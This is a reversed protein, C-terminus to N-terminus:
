GFLSMQETKNDAKKEEKKEPVIEKPKEKNTKKQKESKWIEENFYDRAIKFVTDSSVHGALVSVGDVKEAKSQGGLMECVTEKIFDLCGSMKEPIFKPCYKQLHIEVQKGISAEVQAEMSKYIKINEDTAKM